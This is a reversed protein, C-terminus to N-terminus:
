LRKKKCLSISSNETYLGSVLSYVVMKSKALIRNYIKRSKMPWATEQGEFPIAAVVPINRRIAAIALSQDWGLSMGSVVHSVNMSELYGDALSIIKEFAKNSYGGLKVPRHGSGAITLKKGNFLKRM